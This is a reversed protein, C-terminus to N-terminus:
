SDELILKYKVIHVNKIEEITNFSGPSAAVKM